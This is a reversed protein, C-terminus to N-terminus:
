FNCYQDRVTRWVRAFRFDGSRVSLALGTISSGWAFPALELIEPIQKRQAYRFRRITLAERGQKGYSQDKRCGRIGEPMRGAM